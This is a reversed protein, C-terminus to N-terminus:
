NRYGPLPLPPMLVVILILCPVSSCCYGTDAKWSHLNDKLYTGEQKNRIKGLFDGSPKHAPIKSLSERSWETCSSNHLELLVQLHKRLIASTNQWTTNISQLRWSFSHLWNPLACLFSIFVEGFECLRRM